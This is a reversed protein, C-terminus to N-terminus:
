SGSLNINIVASSSAPTDDCESCGGGSPSSQRQRPVAYKAQTAEITRLKEVYAAPLGREAAAQIILNLYEQSPKSPAGQKDKRYLIVKHTKGETDTVTAPHHFYAGSGDMRADQANDLRERDSSKLDYIVGWVEQDPAPIVTEEAGDWVPTHGFFALQHHPLRAIAVVKANSCLPAIHERSMYPGYAFHYLDDFSEGQLVLEAVGSFAKKRLGEAM